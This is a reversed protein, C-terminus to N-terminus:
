LFSVSLLYLLSVWFLFCGFVALYVGNWTHLMPLGTEKEEAPPAPVPARRGSESAAATSKM